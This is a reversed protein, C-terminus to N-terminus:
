KTEQRRANAWSQVLYFYKNLGGWGSIFYQQVISFITTVIWYLVVGSPFNLSFVVTMLPMIYMMQQMVAEAQEQQDQEKENLEKVAKKSSNDPVVDHKEVGPLIMLSMIFQLAGALVPMFYTKDKELLNLGFFYSELGSEKLFRNLVSYLAILFIIQVFPLLTSWSLLQIDHQKYLEMQAQSLKVKDNAFKKKLKALEPKLKKLKDRNKLQQKQSPYTLPILAGRVIITLLIISWGLNGTMVYLNELLFHIPQTILNM